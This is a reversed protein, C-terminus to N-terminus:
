EKSKNKKIARLFFLSKGEVGSPQSAGTGGDIFFFQKASHKLCSNFLERLFFQSLPYISITFGNELDFVLFPSASSTVTGRSFVFLNLSPASATLDDLRQQALHSLSSNPGIDAKSM